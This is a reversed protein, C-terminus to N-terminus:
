KLSKLWAPIHHAQIKGPSVLYLQERGIQIYDINTASITALNELQLKSLSYAMLSQNEIWLLHENYFCIRQNSNSDVRQILNGQNDFILYGYDKVHMFLRNKFERIELVEFNEIPLILNLPQSQLVINRLYDLSKLSFDSEDYVWIVNNNGLTAVRALNVTSRSFDEEHLSSLFRDLIRYEQLDRSFTFINVTKAAEIHSLRGQRSPSFVNLQKGSASFLYIDGNTKSAFIQDKTDLSILDLNEISIEFLPDDIPITRQALAVCSYLFIVLFLLKNM